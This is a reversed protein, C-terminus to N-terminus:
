LDIECKYGAKEFAEKAYKHTIENSQFEGDNLKIRISDVKNSDNKEDLILVDISTPRGQLQNKFSDKNEFYAIDSEITKGDYNLHPFLRIYVSPINISLGNVKITKIKTASLILGM